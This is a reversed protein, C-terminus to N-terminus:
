SDSVQFLTEIRGEFEKPFRENRHMRIRGTTLLFHGMSKIIIDFIISSFRMFKNVLLFDTNNPHLLTPLHRCIEGHVTNTQGPSANPKAKVRPTKFVYKVYSLMLDKRGSEEAVMHILNILLRIINLSIEETNSSVLLIFLEDLLTPLFSIVASIDIAHAAKLVKCTESDSPIPGKCYELLREAHAFLNHLHLDTTLVTSHLRFNVNFIPKQNDIWQIDPGSNQKIILFKYSDCPFQNSKSYKISLFVSFIIGM